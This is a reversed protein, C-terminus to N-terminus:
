IDKPRNSILRARIKLQLDQITHLMHGIQPPALSMDFRATQRSNM